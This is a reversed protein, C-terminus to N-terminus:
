CHKCIETARKLKRNEQDQEVSEEFSDQKRSRDSPALSNSKENTSNGPSKPKRASPRREATFRSTSRTADPDPGLGDWASHPGLQLNTQADAGGTLGAVLASLVCLRTLEIAFRRRWWHPLEAIIAADSESLHICM